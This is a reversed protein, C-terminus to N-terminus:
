VDTLKNFIKIITSTSTTTQSNFAHAFSIFYQYSLLTKQMCHNTRSPWMGTVPQM